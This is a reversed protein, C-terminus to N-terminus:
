YIERIGQMKVSVENFWTLLNLLCHYDELYNDLVLKNLNFLLQQVEGVPQIVNYSTSCSEFTCFIAM